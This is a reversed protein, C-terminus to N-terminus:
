ITIIRSGVDGPGLELAGELDLPSEGRGAPRVLRIQHPVSRQYGQEADALVLDGELVELRPYDVVFLRRDQGFPVDTRVQVTKPILKPNERLNSELGHTEKLESKSVGM